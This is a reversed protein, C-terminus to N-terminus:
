KIKYKEMKAYLLSRSIGLENAAKTRNGQTSELAKEILQKETLEKEAFFSGCFAKERMEKSHFAKKKEMFLFDNGSLLGTGKLVCAREIVHELERVNGPWSYDQLYTISESSLGIINLKYKRNIKEVLSAALAPLDELRERLPPLEIELVNIRYLLDERFKKEETMQYLNKNSCCIVQLNLSIPTISGIREVEYEQLVRLLKSQMELPLEEIEDLLITGNNALEFKGAKGGKIAGSFTGTEYGFLESEMLERPIAACNVKVFPANRRSGANHIATAFVEKGTGSEGTLLIPMTSNTVHALINKIEIIKPSIGIINNFVEPATSLGQLQSRYLQNSIKLKEIEAYLTNLTDTSNLLSISIVGQVEGYYNKIPIRSYVLGRGDAFEFLDDFTPEGTEITTYLKTNPIINEIKEGILKQRNYGLFDCYSDSVFVINGYKDIIIIHFLMEVSADIIKKIESLNESEVHKSKVM